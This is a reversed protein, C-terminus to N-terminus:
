RSEDSVYHAKYLTAAVSDFRNLIEYTISTIDSQLIVGNDLRKLIEHVVTGTVGGADAFARKRHKCSEFISVFLKDRSFAELKKRNPSRVLVSASLDIAEHTTFVNGCNGCVRRRWINNNRIQPRSNIVRTGHGCYLCVM